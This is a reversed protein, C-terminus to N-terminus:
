AVVHLTVCWKLKMHSLFGNFRNRLTHKVSIYCFEDVIKRKVFLIQSKRHNPSSSFAVRLCDERGYTFGFMDVINASVSISLHQAIILIECFFIETLLTCVERCLAPNPNPQKRLASIFEQLARCAAQPYKNSLVVRRIDPLISLLQEDGFRLYLFFLHSLRYIQRDADKPYWSMFHFILTQYAQSLVVNEKQEDLATLVSDHIFLEGDQERLFKRSIMRDFSTTFMKESIFPHYRNLEPSTVFHRLDNKMMSGKHLYVLNLLFLDTSQKTNRTMELVANRVYDSDESGAGSFLIIQCLNGHSKHYADLASKREEIGLLERPLLKLADEDELRKLELLKVDFQAQMLENCLRLYGVDSESCLTYEFVFVSKPVQEMIEKLFEWSHLDIAQINQIDVIYPAGRLYNVIFNRKLLLQAQGGDEVLPEVNALSAVTQLTLHFGQDFRHKALPTALLTEDSKLNAKSQKLVADYLRNFYECSDLTPSTQNSINPISVQIHPQWECVTQFLFDILCSKGVGSYGFLFIIKAKENQRNRIIDTLENRVSNRDYFRSTM